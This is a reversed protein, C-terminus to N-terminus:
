LQEIDKLHRMLKLGKDTLQYLTRVPRTDMVTRRILNMKSLSRVILTVTARSGVIENELDYKLIEAYHASGKDCIFELTEYFGKKSMKRLLDTFGKRKHRDMEQGYTPILATM